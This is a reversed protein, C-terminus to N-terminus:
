IFDMVLYWREAESFHDYISPLNPHKLSALLFAERKFADTAEITEQLSLGSQSMEKIALLRNGLQIDEAKYVAGFGGKGVQSITRYRQRLLHNSPLLGTLTSRTSGATPYGSSPMATRLPQGCAFCFADSAQNASGCVTCYRHSPIM